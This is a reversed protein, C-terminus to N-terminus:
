ILRRRRWLLVGAGLILFSGLIM